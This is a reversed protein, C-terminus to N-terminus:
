PPPKHFRIRPTKQCHRIRGIGQPGRCLDERNKESMFSGSGTADAM